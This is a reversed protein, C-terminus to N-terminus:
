QSAGDHRSVPVLQRAADVFHPGLLTWQRSGTTALALPRLSPCTREEHGLPAPGGRRCRRDSRVRASRVTWSCPIKTASAADGHLDPFHHGGGGLNQQLGHWALASVLWSAVCALLLAARVRSPAMRLCLSPSQGGGEGRATPLSRQAALAIRAVRPACLAAVTSSSFEGVLLIRVHGAYRREVESRQQSGWNRRQFQASAVSM